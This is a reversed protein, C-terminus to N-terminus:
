NKVIMKKKGTPAATLPPSRIDSRKLLNAKRLFPANSVKIETGWDSHKWAVQDKKKQLYKVPIEPLTGPAPSEDSAGALEPPANALIDSTIGGRGAGCCVAASSSSSQSAYGHHGLTSHSVWSNFDESLRSINDRWPSGHRTLHSMKDSTKYGWPWRIFLLILLHTRFTM